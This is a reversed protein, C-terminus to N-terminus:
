IKTTSLTGGTKMLEILAVILSIVAGTLKRM